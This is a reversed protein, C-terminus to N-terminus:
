RKEVLRLPASTGEGDQQIELYATGPALDGTLPRNPNPMSDVQLYAGKDKDTRVPGVFGRDGPGLRRSAGLVASNGGKAFIQVYVPQATRNTVDAAYDAQCGALGLGCLVLAPFVGPITRGM